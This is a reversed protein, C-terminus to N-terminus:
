PTNPPVSPMWDNNVEIFDVWNMEQEESLAFSMEVDFNFSPVWTTDRLQPINRLMSRDLLGLGQENFAIFCARNNVITHRFDPAVSRASEGIISYQINASYHTVTHLKPIGGVLFTSENTYGKQELNIINIVCYTKEPELINSNAYYIEVDPHGSISLASQTALYLKEELVDYFAM